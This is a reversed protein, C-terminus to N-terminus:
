PTRPPLGKRAVEAAREEAKVREWIREVAAVDDAQEGAFVHPHRRVIKETAGSVVDAMDFWGNERCLQTVFVVNALLDGLESCLTEPAAEGAQVEAAAAVAEDLEERLYPFLSDLTQKRDWPCGDPARLRAM